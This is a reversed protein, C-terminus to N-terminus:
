SILYGFLWALFFVVSISLLVRAISTTSESYHVKLRKALSLDDLGLEQKEIRSTLSRAELFCLIGALFFPLFIVLAHSYSSSQHMDLWWEISFVIDPLPYLFGFFTNPMVYFAFSLFCIGLMELLFGMEYIFNFEPSFKM